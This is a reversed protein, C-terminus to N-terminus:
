CVMNWVRKLLGPAFYPMEAKMSFLFGFKLPMQGGRIQNSKIFRNAHYNLIAHVFLIFVGLSSSGFAVRIQLVEGLELVDTRRGFRERFKRIPNEQQLQSQDDLVEDAHPLHHVHRPGERVPEGM